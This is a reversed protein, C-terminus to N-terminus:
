RELPKDSVLSQLDLFVKQLVPAWEGVAEQRILRASPYWPSDERAILWRWDPVASLLIWVPKGMAGALHAIATDVTIVLDLNDILAATQDFDLEDGFHHLDRSAAALPADRDPLDRHLSFWEIDPVMISRMVALPISREPDAKHRPNGQWAIGVRPRTRPGLRARWARRLDRDCAIYGHPAPITEISTTFALPLSMLPCHCDFDLGKARRSVLHDVGDLTSLLGMLAEPVQLIVRAGLGRVMAAYRCFQLTDGLGQESHLLITKGALPEEGLWLPKGFAGLHLESQEDRWRREYNRWGAAFDGVLLRCLALNHHRSVHRPALDMARDFSKLADDSRDLALLVNGRNYCAEAYDPKLAIAREFGALAAEMRGLAKLVNGRDFHAQATEPALAISRDLEALAEDHRALAALAAGRGHLARADGPVCAIARDFSALADKPRGLALLVKGRGLHSEPQDPALAIARDFSALAEGHRGLGSLVAGRNCHAEAHDPMLAVARDLAALAEDPRGLDMLVRARNNHADAVDPELSIARDILKLADGHRKRQTLLVGLLHLAGPHGPARRLIEGYARQAEDFRGNEHHDM